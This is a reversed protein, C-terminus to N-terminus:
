GFNIIHFLKAAGSEERRNTIELLIARQKGFKLFNDCSKCYLNNDFKEIRSSATTVKEAAVMLILLSHQRWIGHVLRLFSAM